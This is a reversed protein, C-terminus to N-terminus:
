VQGPVQCVVVAAALIPGVPDPHILFSGLAIVAAVVVAGITASRFLYGSTALAEDSQNLGRAHSVFRQAAPSLGRLAVMGGVTYVFVLSVYRGYVSPGLRRAVFVATATATVLPGLFAR